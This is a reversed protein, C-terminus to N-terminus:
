FQQWAAYICIQPVKSWHTPRKKRAEKASQGSPVTLIEAANRVVDNGYFADLMEPDDHDDMQILEENSIEEVEIPDYEEEVLGDSQSFNQMQLLIHKNKNLALQKQKERAQREQQQKEKKKLQEERKKEREEKKQEKEKQGDQKYPGQKKQCKKRRRM